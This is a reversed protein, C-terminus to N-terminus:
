LKEMLADTHKSIVEGYSKLIDFHFSPTIRVCGRPVCLSPNGCFMGMYLSLTRVCAEM